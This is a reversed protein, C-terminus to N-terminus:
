RRTKSLEKVRPNEEDSENIIQNCILKIKATRLSIKEKEGEFATLKKEVNSLWILYQEAISDSWNQQIFEKLKQIESIIYRGENYEM